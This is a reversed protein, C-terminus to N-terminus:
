ARGKRGQKKKEKKERAEGHRKGGKRAASESRRGAIQEALLQVTGVRAQDSEMLRPHKDLHVVGGHLPSEQGNTRWGALWRLFILSARSMLHCARTVLTVRAQWRADRATGTDRLSAM